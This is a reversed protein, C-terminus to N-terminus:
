PELNLNDFRVAGPNPEDEAGATLVVQVRSVDLPTRAQWVPAWVTGDGSAEWFTTGASERIRWFHHSAHDFAVAEYHESGDLTYSATLQGNREYLQVWNMTDIFAM